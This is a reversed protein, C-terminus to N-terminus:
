LLEVGNNTTVCLSIIEFEPLPSIFNESIVSEMDSSTSWLNIGRAGLQARICLRSVSMIKNDYIYTVAIVLAASSTHLLPDLAAAVDLISRKTIVTLPKWDNLIIVLHEMKSTTATRSGGRTHTSLNRLAQTHVFFFSDHKVNVLHLM